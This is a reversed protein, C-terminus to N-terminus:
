LSALLLPWLPYLLHKYKQLRSSLSDIARYILARASKTRTMGITAAIERYSMGEYFYLMLAEKQRPPLQNCEETIIEKQLSTFEQNIFRVSNDELINFAERAITEHRDLLKREKKLSRLLKRRLSKFLYFKISVTDGLKKRKTIIETFLEQICDSVLAEDRTFQCGYNYMKNAYQQYISVLAAEDGNRFAEWVEKDSRIEESARINRKEQWEPVSKNLQQFRIAQDDKSM